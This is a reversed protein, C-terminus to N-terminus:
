GPLSCLENQTLFQVTLLHLESNPADLDDAFVQRTQVRAAQPMLLVFTDITSPLTETAYGHPIKYKDLLM